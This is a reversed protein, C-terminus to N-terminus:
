EGEYLMPTGDPNVLLTFTGMNYYGGSVVYMVKTERNYVVRWFNAREVTVFMSPAEEVVKSETPNAGGCGTFTACVGVAVVVVFALIVIFSKIAKMKM